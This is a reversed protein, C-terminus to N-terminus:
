YKLVTRIVIITAFNQRNNVNNIKQKLNNAKAETRAPATIQINGFRPGNLINYLVESDIYSTAGTIINKLDYM